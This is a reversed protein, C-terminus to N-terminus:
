ASCCAPMPMGVGPLLGFPEDLFPLPDRSPLWEEDFTDLTNCVSPVSDFYATVTDNNGIVSSSLNIAGDCAEVCQLLYTCFDAVSKHHADRIYAPM